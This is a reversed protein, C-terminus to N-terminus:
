LILSNKGDALGRTIQIILIVPLRSQRIGFFSLYKEEDVDEFHRVQLLCLRRKFNM